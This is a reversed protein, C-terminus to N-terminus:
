EETEVVPEEVELDALDEDEDYEDYGFEDEFLMREYEDLEEERKKLYYAMAGLAGGIAALFVLIAVLTSKKM